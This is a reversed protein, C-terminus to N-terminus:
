SVELYGGTERRRHLINFGWRIPDPRGVSGPREGCGEFGVWDTLCRIMTDNRWQHSFTFLPSLSIIHNSTIIRRRNFWADILVWQMTLLFLFSVAAAVLFGPKLDWDLSPFVWNHLSKHAWPRLSIWCTFLPSGIQYCGLKNWILDTKRADATGHNLASIWHKGIQVFFDDFFLTWELCFGFAKNQGSPSVM